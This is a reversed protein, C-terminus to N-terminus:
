GGGGGAPAAKSPTGIGGGGGPAGGGSSVGARSPGGIAPGGGGMPARGGGGGGAANNNSAGPLKDAFTVAGPQFSATDTKVPEPPAPQVPEFRTFFLVLGFILVLVIAVASIIMDNQSKM